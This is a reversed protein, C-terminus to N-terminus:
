RRHQKSQQMFVKCNFVEDIWTSPANFIDVPILDNLTLDEGNLDSTDNFQDWLANWKFDSSNEELLGDLVIDCFVL